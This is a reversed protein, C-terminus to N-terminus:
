KGGKLQEIEADLRVIQELLSKYLKYIFITDGSVDNPLDPREIQARMTEEEKSLKKDRM